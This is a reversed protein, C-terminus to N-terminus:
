ELTAIYNVTKEIDKDIVNELAALMSSVNTDAKKLISDVIKGFNWLYGSDFLLGDFVYELCKQSGENRILKAGLVTEYLVDNIIYHSECALVSLVVASREPDSVNTPITAITSGYKNISTYYKEQTTDYKPLPLIGFEADMSRMNYLSHLPRIMFAVRDECFMNIADSLGLGFTQRNFHMVADTKIELAKTLYDIGKESELAFEFEDAENKDVITMGFGHLLYVTTDNQGSIGYADKEDYVGDSNLDASLNGGLELLKDLTWNGQETLQYLDGMQHTDALQQNFFVVSSAMKDYFTADSAILFMKDHIIASENCAQNYWPESFDFAELQSVEMACGKNLVASVNHQQPFLLDVDNLGANINNSLNTVYNGTVLEAELTINLKEEVSKNRKYVADSLVEGNEGESYFEYPISDPWSQGVIADFSQIKFVAGGYDIGTTDYYPPETEPPLTTDSTVEAGNTAETTTSTTNKDSGVVPDDNDPQKSSNCATSLMMIAILFICLFKKM